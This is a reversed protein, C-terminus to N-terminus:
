AMDRQKLDIMSAIYAQTLPKGYESQLDPSMVELSRLGDLIRQSNQAAQLTPISARQQNQVQATTSPSIQEGVAGGLNAGGTAGGMAGAVITAPGGPIGALGGAVGGIVAGLGKGINAGRSSTTGSRTQTQKQRVPTLAM